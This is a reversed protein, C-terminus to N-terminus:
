TLACAAQPRAPPAIIGRLKVLGERDYNRPRRSEVTYRLVRHLDALRWLEWEPAGEPSLCQRWKSLRPLCYEVLGRLIRLPAPSVSIHRWHYDLYGSSQGFAKAARLWSSRSLRGEDFCHLVAPGSSRRIKLGANRLQYAFLTEEGCGLSGAGLEPDFAPIVDLVSRAFAMNAGVMESPESADLRESSALWARHTATMWPRLLHPALDVSGAVADGKKEVM